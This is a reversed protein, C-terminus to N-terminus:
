KDGANLRFIPAVRWSSFNRATRGRRGCRKVTPLGCYIRVRKMRLPQGDHPDLPVSTLWAPVLQELREPYTGNKRRYATLALGTRATQRLAALSGATEAIVQHKPKIVRAYFGTRDQRVSARLIASDEPSEDHSSTRAHQYDAILKRM